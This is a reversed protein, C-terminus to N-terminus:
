GAPPIRSCAREDYTYWPPSGVASLSTCRLTRPPDDMVQITAVGDAVTFLRDVLHDPDGPDNTVVRFTALTGNRMARTLCDPDDPTMGPVVFGCDVTRPTTSTATTTTTTSRTTPPASTPGSPGVPGAPDSPDAPTRGPVGAPPDLTPGSAPESSPPCPSDGGICDGSSAPPDGADPPTTASECTGDARRGTQCDGPRTRPGEGPRARPQTPDPEDARGPVDGASGPILGREPELQHALDGETSRPGDNVLAVTTLILAFAAM